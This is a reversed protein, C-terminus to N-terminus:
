CTESNTKSVKELSVKFTTMRDGGVSYSPNYAHDGSRTSEKLYGTCYQSLTM